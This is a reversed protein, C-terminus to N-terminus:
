RCTRTGSLKLLICEVPDQNSLLCFGMCPKKVSYQFYFIVDKDM